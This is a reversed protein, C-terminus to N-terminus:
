RIPSLPFDDDQPPSYNGGGSATANVPGGFVGHAIRHLTDEPSEVGAVSGYTGANEASANSTTSVGYAPPPPPPPVPPPVLSPPLGTHAALAQLFRQFNENQNQVVQGWALMSNAYEKAMRSDRAEPAEKKRADEEEQRKRKAAESTARSSKLEAMAERDDVIGNFTAWKGHARGCSCDYLARVDVPSHLWDFDPGNLEMAKTKYRELCATAEETNLASPNEPNSGRHTYVWAEVQTVERGEKKSLKQRIVAISNSGGRHPKFKRSLRNARNTESKKQFDSHSWEAALARWCDEKCWLPCRAVYEDRSLYFRGAIKDCIKREKVIRFHEMTAYIRAYYMISGILHKCCRAVQERARDENDHDYRFRLWFEEEVFDAKSKGASDKSAQFHKWTSAVVTKGRYAVLGPHHEKLLCTLVSAPTRGEGLTPGEIWQTKGEPILLPRDAENPIIPPLNASGRLYIEAIEPAAVHSPGNQSSATSQGAGASSSTRSRTRRHSITMWSM